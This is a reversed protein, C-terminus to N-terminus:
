RMLDGSDVFGHERTLRQPEEQGVIRPGPLRDHGAEEDLLEDDAPVDLPAEDHARTAEDLLPLVLEGLAKM